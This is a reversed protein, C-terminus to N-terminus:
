MISNKTAKCGPPLIVSIKHHENSKIASFKIDGQVTHAVLQLNEIDGLQPKIAVTKFGPEVPKIGAIDMFLVYIPAVPCHSWEEATDPSITWMEQLTNNQIVSDLNAWKTRLENLVVNAFGNQALARLRWGANAPYSFGMNDPCGALIRLSEKIENAPCQNFLVATALSRDCYVPKKEQKIWPLNIVFLKQKKDWFKNITSVLITKSLKAYKISNKKDNFLKALPVLGHSLMAAINLNFACQKHRQQKYAFHDIWVVPVGIDEVKVLGDKDIITQLYEAFRVLKPYVYRVIDSNGTEMYHYWCDFVFQVGHDLIPGWNSLGIERELVRNLRDISPWCDLFYGEPTLGDSYTRLFREPLRTEGFMYRIAHLQHGVDGSYQQRERGMGDVCTEQACNYLTNISADIVTQIKKDSCQIEPEAPWDYIRRRAGVSSIIVDRKNNRVNLQVWRFSEFDYPEFYNIGEKCIYRSWCFFHTDLWKTKAPDHAEQCMLEIVTGEPADVTFYPWGVLQEKFEFTIAAGTFGTKNAPLQWKDASIQTVVPTDVIEFSGPTRFEFWDDPNKLWNVRFSDVARLVPVKTENMLPIERAALGSVVTEDCSTNMIYDGYSSCVAPKDSPCDLVMVPVWNKDVQFDQKDWGYPHIRANFEEQLSRLYWRRYQGPKHARDLYSYWTDDTVVTEKKGNKYEIQLYVILGPKGITWTGEGHGYYLVEACITNKGKTIHKTLDTHDVETWRPDSPPPGWQIRQGNVILKYRSDASIWGKVNVPQDPVNIEKRFLVFTNPLTRQSPYWVWKAPSLDITKFGNKKTIKIRM